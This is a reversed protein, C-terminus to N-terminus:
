SSNGIKVEKLWEITMKVGEELSVRPKWGLLRRAKEWSGTQRKIGGFIKPYDLLSISSKSGTLEIILNALDLISTGKGTALNVPEGSPLNKALWLGYVVDDIYVYDRMDSGDGFVTLPKNSKAQFYFTPIVKNLQQKPGYPNFIRVMKVDVGYCKHYMYCISDVAAKSAAYPNPPRLPYNEDIHNDSDGYIESTNPYVLPISYERCVELVNLAGKINVGITQTPTLTSEGPKVEAAFHYILDCEKAISHLQKVNMVDFGDRRSYGVIDVNMQQLFRKMNSGLFGRDGTILVLM